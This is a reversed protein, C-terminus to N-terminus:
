VIDIFLVIGSEIINYKSGRQRVSIRLTDGSTSHFLTTAEETYTFNVELYKDM